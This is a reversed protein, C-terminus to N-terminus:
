LKARLSLVGGGDSGRAGLPVSQWRVMNQAHHCSIQSCPHIAPDDVLRFPSCGIVLDALPPHIDKAPRLIFLPRAPVRKWRPLMTLVSNLNDGESCVATEKVLRGTRCLAEHQAEKGSAQPQERLGRKIMLEFRLVEFVRELRPAFGFVGNLCRFSDIEFSVLSRDIDLSACSGHLTFSRQPPNSLPRKVTPSARPKSGRWSANSRGVCKCSSWPSKISRNRLSKSLSPRAATARPVPGSSSSSPFM